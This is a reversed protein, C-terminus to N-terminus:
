PSVEVVESYDSYVKVKGIIRYARVRYYYATGAILKTNIISLTNAGTFVVSYSGDGSTSRSLEYGTAGEVASWSVKISNKKVYLASLITPVALIPTAASSQSYSSFVKTMGALRYARVRYYYTKGTFLGADKFFLVNAVLGVVTYPGSESVARSIEYGSAGEIAGWSIGVSNFSIPNTAAVPAPLATTALVVDSYSGYTTSSGEGIFARVRYYYNVNFDLGLDTFSNVSAIGVPTFAGDVTLSQEIEYGSANEVASWDLKVSNYSASSTLDTVTGTWAAVGWAAYLVVDKIGMVLSSGPRYDVGSGDPRTNWGVFTAGSKKLNGSNGPVTVKEGFAYATFDEPVSGETAGNADYRITHQDAPDFERTPMGNWNTTWGNSWKVHYVTPGQQDAASEALAAGAAIEFPNAAISASAFRLMPLEGWAPANGTFILTKLADCGEFVDQGVTEITAPLTLSELNTCDSFAMDGIFDVKQGLNVDLLGTCGQFAYSEIRYVSDPLVALKLSSCNKFANYGITEVGDPINVEVLASCGQFLSNSIENLSGFFEVRELRICNMFAYAELTTVSAPLTISTLNNCKAFAMLEITTLSNPIVLGTLGQANRFASSGITVTGEPIIYEGIRSRPYDLLRTGTKDFLVGDQSLYVENLESVDISGLADCGSFGSALSTVSAPINVSTLGTCGILAYGGITTVGDPVTWAGSTGEPLRILTTLTKDFLMGGSSAYNANDTSVDISTLAPCRYFAPEPLYTIGAPITVDTMASCYSLAMEDIVTVSEPIVCSGARQSAYALLQTGDKSLLFGNEAIYFPNGVDVTFDLLGTNAFCGAGISSVGAPISIGTLDACDMFATDGISTVTEPIVLGTLGTRSLSGMGISVLGAPLTLDTLSTCGYFSFEDISTINIGFNVVSLSSCGNFAAYGTSALGDGLTLQTLGTCGHFATQGIFIVADPITLDTLSTCGQFANDSINTLSEPLSLSLLGSCDKFADFGITDLQNGFTVSALAKCGSFAAESIYTVGDPIAVDTLSSCGHFARDGIYGVSSPITVATLSTCGDFAEAVIETVGEPIVLNQLSSCGNFMLGFSTLGTPLTVGTLSTCGQFVADSMSTVSEPIVVDTLSRCSKFAEYGINSVSAPISVSVLSFCNKFAQDTISQIGGPIVIGILGSGMFAGGGIDVLSDPLIINTLGVCDAFAMGGIVATGEPVTFSGSKGGPCVLLSAMGASFLVGDQSSFYVNAPDVDIAALDTAGAFAFPSISSVSAPVFIRNLGKCESFAQYGVTEVGFPISYEGIKRAPCQILGTMAQNFLVGDLSAFVPNLPDVDFATLGLCGTFAEWDILALGAGIQISTLGTCNLFAHDEITTLSDPLILQTLSSCNKFAYFGISDLGEAFDVHTLNKCGWFLEPGIRKISAPITVGTITLDNGFGVYLETVPYGGLESPIVVEGGPGAYDYIIAIGEEVYYLFDDEQTEAYVPATVSPFLALLLSILLLMSLTKKM